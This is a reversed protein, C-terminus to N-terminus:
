HSQLSRDKVGPMRRYMFNTIVLQYASGAIKKFINKSNGVLLKRGLIGTGMSIIGDLVKIRWEASSAIDSIASKILGSPSVSDVFHLAAVTLAAQQEAQQLKLFIIRKELNQKNIIPISV